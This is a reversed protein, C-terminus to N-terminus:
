RVEWGSVFELEIEAERSEVDLRVQKARANASSRYADLLELIGREGAEYSVQAIRELEASSGSAARYRDAATRREVVRAHLSAIRANLAMNFAALQAEAQTAQARAVAREPQGHDFLPIPVHVSFVTGVDGAGVNSSKTGAVIEPEPVGRREAARAALQAAEADKQLALADGRITRAKAVLEEVTPLPTRDAPNPASVVMAPVDAPSAFFGGLAGQARARVDRAASLETDLETLERQARLFDYGAADGARERSALIQVLEDLRSRAAMLESERAQAAALDAYAVRLESRAQRIADDSRRDQADARAAAAEIELGRRGTVPLPQTVLFMNETVGAVSERNYTFRPNPWRGAAVIEARAVASSARIARVRPSDTSLRALADAESLVSQGMAPTALCVLAGAVCWTRTRM